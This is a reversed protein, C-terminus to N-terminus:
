IISDGQDPTVKHKWNTEAADAEDVAMINVLTVMTPHASTGSLSWPSKLSQRATSMDLQLQHHHLSLIEM